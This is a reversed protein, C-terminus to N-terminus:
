EGVRARYFRWPEPTTHFYEFVGAPPSNTYIPVWTQLNASAEIIYSHGPTTQFWIRFVGPAVSEGALVPRTATRVGRGLLELDFGADSSTLASQHLEVALVNRGEILSTSPTNTPFFASEAADTVAATALNTFVIPGGPMNMRFLETNNLWVLVGDDRLVRFALNTYAASNTVQFSRRFYTTVFRASPPGITIVTVPADNSGLKAPGSAWASDDFSLTRWANSRNSGDDLYRWVAGTAILTNTFRVDPQAVIVSVAPSTATGADDDTVVATLQYNGVAVNSWTISYPGATAEGLKTAGSFFEVKAVEDDPDSPAAVLTVNAPVVFTAGDVPSTLTVQPPLNTVTITVVASTATLGRADTARATLQFVGELVHQWTFTYPSSTDQGLKSGNAFFEVRAVNTGSASASASISVDAHPHFIAGSVPSTLTVVPPVPNTSNARRALLALDFSVDSSTLNAQHVEIALMNAGETLLAHNVAFEQLVDEDTVVTASFNTYSVAGTPMNNRFLEVGNLYGIAGDDRILQVTLNTVDAVNNASFARRFYTTVIRTGDSRNSRILTVEDGDGYGLQALGTRWGSEEFAPATWAAAQDSGDDLYSWSSGLGVLTVPPQPTQVVTLVAPPTSTVAGRSNSVVVAYDGADSLQANNLVLSTNTENARNVGGKRWQYRLPPDGTASVVFTAAGGVFVTQSQPPFNIIPPEPPCDPHLLVERTTALGAADTVTLTVRYYYTEGNCGVPSILTTTACNTDAPEAHSHNNHHLITQWSCRRQAPGHEADTVIATCNYTTPNALSYRTGNTPSTITVQPPTNNVSILVRNTASAGGSDTVVLTVTFPTPVGPPANFTHGPSANTSTPTGDGFNWRFTLPQSEPDSSGASSFQVDLPAPGFNTNAGAMATPLQNGGPVYRVRRLFATWAIYYLDGNTPDVEIDVVGGANDTFNQVAVPQNNTTFVFSKIWQAGYDGHFYTNRFPPPFASNTQWAGGTSSNGPFMSGSVPSGAEGINIVAAQNNSYIGTRALTQGHRWDLAPRTHVFRPITAPIQQNTICPNPWSPALLSAQKILDRFLFFQQTCGGIGFRPNPADQNAPSASTYGSNAQLGEFAPWGFNLGPRDCVHLDEWTGYGVDGIYLVGPDADARDHSGTGPRQTMRFPNRLGMAWMRSRPARPNAADFFPNGPVGDGTEPDIRIVKGNLCDVLQSRYAGVNEKPRLIGDNLAQQWYTEGASGVDTSSYSAGDGCSALLTGDTGVLITGTAHSEHLVPFGTSRTEGLLVRRSAPDVSRYGDASRATYRTIRGITAQFYLNSSSSYNQTGFHFLHHRDVVYLLYVHGNNYFDPHLAFGLLGFDRYGAVEERLDLFPTASKVGNEITWVRGGREWVYMRGDPAFVLGVAENWTGGIETEVFGAPLTAGRVPSPALLLLAASLSALM